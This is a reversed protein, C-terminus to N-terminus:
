KATLEDGMYLGITGEGLCQIFGNLDFMPLINKLLLVYKLQDRLWQPLTTLPPM